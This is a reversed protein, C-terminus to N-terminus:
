EALRTGVRRPSYDLLGHLGWIMCLCSDTKSWLSGKVLRIIRFHSFYSMFVGFIVKSSSVSKRESYVFADMPGSESKSRAFTAFQHSSGHGSYDSPLVFAPSADERLRPGRKSITSAEYASGRERAKVSLPEVSWHPLVSVDCGTLGQGLYGAPLQDLLSAKLYDPGRAKKFFKHKLLQAVTPRQDPQQQLCAQVLEQFSRSPAPRANKPYGSLLSAATKARNHVVASPHLDHDPPKGYALELCLIGFSWVDVSASYGSRRRHEGLPSTTVPRSGDATHSTSERRARRRLRDVPSSPSHVRKREGSGSQPELPGWIRALGKLLRSGEKTSDDTVTRSAATLENLKRLSDESLEAQQRSSAQRVGNVSGNVDSSTRGNACVLAVISDNVISENSDGSLLTIQDASSQHIVLPELCSDSSAERKHHLQSHTYERTEDADSMPASRLIDKGGESTGSSGVSRWGNAKNSFSFTQTNLSTVSSSAIVSPLLFSSDSSCLSSAAAIAAPASSSASLDFSIAIPSSSSHFAPPPPPLANSFKNTDFFFVKPTKRTKSSSVQIPHSSKPSDSLARVYPTLPSLCQVASPCSSSCSTLPTFKCSSLFKVTTNEGHHTYGSGGAGANEATDDFQSITTIPSSSNVEFDCSKDRHALLEIDMASSSPPLLSVLQRAHLVPSSLIPPVALHRPLAPSPPPPPLPSPPSPGTSAIVGASTSPTMTFSAKTPVYVDTAVVTRSMELALNNVKNEQFFVEGEAKLFAEKTRERMSENGSTSAGNESGSSSHNSGASSIDSSSRNLLSHHAGLSQNAGNSSHNSSHNGSQNLSYITGIEGGIRRETTTKRRRESGSPSDPPISYLSPRMSHNLSSEEKKSEGSEEGGQVGPNSSLAAKLKATPDSPHLPPRQSIDDARFASLTTFRNMPSAGYRSNANMSSPSPSYGPFHPSRPPATSTNADSAPGLVPEPGDWNLMRVKDEVEMGEQELSLPRSSSSVENEDWLGALEPAMWCPTGVLSFRNQTKVSPNQLRWETAFGLDGVKVHGDLSVLINDAKIDRHINGNAHMYQLGKLVEFLITALVCEDLFGSGNCLTKMLSLCSGGEFLPMVIFLSTQEVFATHCGIINDHKLMRLLQAEKALAEMDGRSEELDVVKVAVEEIENNEKTFSARYVDGYAGSGIRNLFNYKDSSVPFAPPRSSITREYVVNQSCSCCGM